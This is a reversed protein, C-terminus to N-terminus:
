RMQKLGLALLGVGAIILLAILGLMAWSIGGTDPLVDVDEEPEGVPPEVPLPELSEVSTVYILVDTPDEFDSIPAGQTQFVGYVTVSQGDYQSLDVGQDDSFLGYVDGTSHETIVHTAGEPEPEALTELVGTIVALPAPEYGSASELDTVNLAPTVGPASGIPTGTITVREGVFPSMDLFGSFLVYDTGTAEDTFPYLLTPDEGETYAEGLVGTATVQGEQAFAPAAAVFLMTLMGGLVMLKRM